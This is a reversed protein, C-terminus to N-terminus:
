ANVSPIQGAAATATQQASEWEQRAAAFAPRPKSTPSAPTRRPRRPPGLIAAISGHGPEGGARFRTAQEMTQCAATHMDASKEM